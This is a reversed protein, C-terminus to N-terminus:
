YRKKQSEAFIRHFVAAIALFGRVNKNEFNSAFKAKKARLSKTNCTLSESM